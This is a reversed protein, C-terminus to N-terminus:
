LRDSRDESLADLISIPLKLPPEELIAAANGSGPRLVGNAVLQERLEMEGSPTPPVLRAVPTGRKRVEVEGGLRAEQLYRHLNAKLESVSITSMTDLITEVLTGNLDLM